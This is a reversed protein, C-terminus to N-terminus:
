LFQKKFNTGLLLILDFNEYSGEYEDCEMVQSLISVLLKDSGAIKCTFPSAEKTEISSTKVGIVEIIEGVREALLRSGTQNVIKVRTRGVELEKLSFLAKVNEPMDGGFTFGERGDLLTGKRFAITEDLYIDEKKFTKVRFSFFALRARDGIKLNTKYPTVLAKILKLASDQSFGFAPEYGWAAHPLKYFYSISEVLLEGDLGEDESLKKVSKIRWTGYQRALGIQAEKPFHLNTIKEQSPDFVSVVFSGDDRVITLPLRTNKNWHDKSFIVLLTLVLLTLLFLFKLFGIDKKDNKIPKKRRKRNKINKSKKYRRAPM